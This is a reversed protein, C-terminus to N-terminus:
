AGAEDARPLYIKITTGKGLESEVSIYGYSNEVIGYVMCLGLGTNKGLEKTTYFPEFIHTQTEADMGIGTDSVELVVYRGPKPRREGVARVAELGENQNKTTITLKGGNPMADRANVALHVILQEIGGPDVRVPGLKPDLVMRQEIGDGLLGQLKRLTESVSANLNLLITQLPARPPEFHPSRVGLAALAEDMTHMVRLRPQPLEEVVQLMRALGLVDTGVVAIIRPRKFAVTPEPTALRRIFEPSLAFETVSSLEWIVASADAATSYKQIAWYLKAASEDTLRGEFGGLLIRNVPDFEFRNEM